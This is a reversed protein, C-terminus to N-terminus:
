QNPDWPHSLDFKAVTGTNNRGSKKSSYSSWPKPTKEKWQKQSPPLGKVVAAPRTVEKTELSLDSFQAGHDSIPTIDPPKKTDPRSQHIYFHAIKGGFKLSLSGKGVDIRAKTAYLFPRGLIITPPDDECTEDTPIVYFDATVVLEGVHLIVDELEGVPRICSKDGLEINSRPPKLPGLGLLYYLSSPMANVAAGLDVLCKHIQTEGIGCTVTFAGPDKDREPQSEHDSTLAKGLAPGNQGDRVNSNYDWGSAPIDSHIVSPPSLCVAFAYRGNDAHTVWTKDDNPRDEEQNWDPRRRRNFHKNTLKYAPARAVEGLTTKVNSRKIMSLNAKPNQITQSPLRGPESTLTSMATALQSMQKTLESIAGDIKALMHPDPEIGYDTLPRQELIDDHKQVFEPIEIDGKKIHEWLYQLHSIYKVKWYLGGSLFFRGLTASLFAKVSFRSTHLLCDTAQYQLLSTGLQNVNGALEKMTDDLSKTPEQQNNLGTQHQSQNSERQQYQGPANQNYQRHPPQHYSQAPQAEKQLYSNNNRWDPKSTQGYQRNQGARDNSNNYGQYGGIANVEAPEEEILTPCIDTKHNISGCFECPKVPVPQRRLLQIMMEKLQKMEESIPGTSTEAKAVNKTRSFEEQRTTEERFRANEAVDNILQRVGSLSLNMISGGASADLLMKDLPRLGDILYEIILKEPLGLTCCSRELHNFKELYDYMTENPGQKIDQLQRRVQMARGAPYYKDLFKKQMQAWRRISGSSLSLFWDNAADILSFYFAKLKFDDVNVGNPKLNQCIGHLRQLHTMASEGRTGSFKPLSHAVSTNIAINELETGEYICWPQRPRPPPPYRPPQRVPGAANRDEPPEQNRRIAERDRARRSRILQEPDDMFPLPVEDNREYLNIEDDDQYDHHSGERSM